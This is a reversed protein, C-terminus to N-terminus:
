QAKDGTAKELTYSVTMLPTISSIGHKYLMIQKEEASQVMLVFNDFGTVLVNKIQFGNVLHITVPIQEKRIQNLFIDQLNVAM